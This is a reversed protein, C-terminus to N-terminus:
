TRGLTAQMPNSVKGSALFTTRSTRLAPQLTTGLTASSTAPVASSTAFARGNRRFGAPSTLCMQKGTETQTFFWTLGAVAASVAAVGLGIPNATILGTLSKWGGGLGGFKGSLGDAKGGLDTFGGAVTKIVGGIDSASQMLKGAATTVGGFALAGLALNKVLEQQEPSLSKFWDSASKLAPTLKGLIETGIETVMQKVPLAAEGMERMSTELENQADRSALLDKNTEQFQKGADGYVGSLAETVLTAREQETKCAGLKTSPM